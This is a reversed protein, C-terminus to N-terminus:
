AVFSLKETAFKLSLSASARALVLSFFGSACWADFDFVSGPHVFADFVCLFSDWLAAVVINLSACSEVGLNM